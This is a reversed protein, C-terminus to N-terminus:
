ICSNELDMSFDIKIILILTELYEIMGRDFSGSMQRQWFATAGSLRQTPLKGEVKGDLILLFYQFHIYINKNDIIYKM